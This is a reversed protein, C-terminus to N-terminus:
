LWSSPKDSPAPLQRDEEKRSAALPVITVRPADEVPGLCTLIESNNLTEKAELEAILHEVKPRQAVIIDAARERAEELMEQVAKDVLRTTAESFHRPQAIERGLFPHDESQRLDMPGIAESMGWRAVM